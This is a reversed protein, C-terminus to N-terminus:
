PRPEPLRPFGRSADFIRGRFTKPKPQTWRSSDNLDGFIYRIVAVFSKRVRETRAKLRAVEFCSRVLRVLRAPCVSAVFVAHEHYGGVISWEAIWLYALAGGLRRKLANVAKTRSLRRAALEGRGTIVAHVQTALPQIRRLIRSAKM